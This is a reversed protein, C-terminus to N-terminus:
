RYELIEFDRIEYTTITDASSSNQRITFSMPFGFEANFRASVVQNQLDAAELLGFTDDIWVPDAPETLLTGDDAEVPVPFVAQRESGRETVVYPRKEESACECDRDVVYRFAAPRGASWVRSNEEASKLVVGNDPPLGPITEIFFYGLSVFVILLLIVAAIPTTIQFGYDPTRNRAM